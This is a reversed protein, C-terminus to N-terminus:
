IIINKRQATKLVEEETVGLKQLFAKQADTFFPTDGKTTDVGTTSSIGNQTATGSISRKLEQNVKTLEENRAREEDLAAKAAKAAIEAIQEATLSTTENKKVELTEGADDNLNSKVASKYKLAARRYNEKEAQIKEFEAKLNDYDEQTNLAVEDVESTTAADVDINEVAFDEQTTM